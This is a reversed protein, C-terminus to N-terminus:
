FVSRMGMEFGWDRNVNDKLLGVGPKIYFVTGGKFVKGVEPAVYFDVRNHDNYDVVLQFEPKFYYGSPDQYQVFLRLKGQNVSQFAPDGAVSMDQFYIPIVTWREAAQWVFGVLPALRYKGTGLSVTTLRAAFPNLVLQSDATPLYVDTGIIPLVTKFPWEFVERVDEWKTPLFIFRTYVDGLGFPKAKPLDAYTFPVNIGVSGGGGLIPLTASLTTTNFSLGNQIRYYEHYFTFRRKLKSPDTGADPGGQGQEAGPAAGGSKAAGEEEAPRTAQVALTEAPTPTDVFPGAMTKESEPLDILPTQASALSAWGWMLVLCAQLCRSNM